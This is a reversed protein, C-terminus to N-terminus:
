ADMASNCIDEDNGEVSLCGDLFGDLYGSHYEEGYSSEGDRIQENISYDQGDKYGRDYGASYSDRGDEVYALLYIRESLSVPMAIVLVLSAVIAITSNGILNKASM